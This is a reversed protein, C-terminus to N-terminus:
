GGPAGPLRSLTGDCLQVVLLRGPRQLCSLAEAHGTVMVVGHHPERQVPCGERLFDFYPYPDAVCSEDKFFDVEAFDTM